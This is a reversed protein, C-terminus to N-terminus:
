KVNVELPSHYYRCGNPALEEVRVKGKSNGWIVTVTNSNQEGKIVCGEPLFWVYNHDTKKDIGFTVTQGAKIENPGSIKWGPILGFECATYYTSFFRKDTAFLQSRGGQNRCNGPDVPVDHGMNKFRYFVVVENANDDKYAIRTLDQASLYPSEVDDPITDTKHLCTWQKVIQDANKVNVIKDKEGHFILVRPYKGKFAPNQQWVLEKWEEPTKNVGWVMTGSSNFINSGPKYPGGAFIAAAKYMAPQTAIMVVAMAAGASLGTVFVRATDLAFKQIMYETMQRISECEGKGREIENKKFWNFCHTPNNPVHQQPYLVYFGYEDALENWGTVDAAGKAGQSCGHLMVVLPMKASANKPAHYFLSLNGPNSGFYEIESLEQSSSIISILFSLSVLLTKMSKLILFVFDSIKRRGSHNIIRTLYFL